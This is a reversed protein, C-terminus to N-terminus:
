EKEHKGCNEKNIWSFFSLRLYYFFADFVVIFVRERVCENWSISHVGISTSYTISKIPGFIKRIPTTSTIIEITTLSQKIRLKRLLTWYINPFSEIRILFFENVAITIPSALFEQNMLFFITNGLLSFSSFLHFRSLVIQVM